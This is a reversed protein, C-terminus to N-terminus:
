NQIKSFNGGVVRYEHISASGSSSSQVAAVSADSLVFEDGSPEEIVTLATALNVLAAGHSLVFQQADEISSHRRAVKFSITTRQNGRDYSKAVNSRLTEVIQVERESRISVDYPSEHAEVGSALVIDGILIKM